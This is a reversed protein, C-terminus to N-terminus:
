VPTMMHVFKSSLVQLQVWTHILCTMGNQLLNQLNTGYVSMVAIKTM